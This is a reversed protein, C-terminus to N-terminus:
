GKLDFDSYGGWRVHGPYYAVGLGPGRIRIGEMRMRSAGNMAPMTPEKRIKIRGVAQDIQVLNERASM